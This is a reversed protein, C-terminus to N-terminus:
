RSARDAIVTKIALAAFLILVAYLVKGHLVRCAIAILVAYAAM